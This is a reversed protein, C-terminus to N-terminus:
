GMWAWHQTEYLFWDRKSTDNMQKARCFLNSTEIHFAVSLQFQNFPGCMNFIKLYM